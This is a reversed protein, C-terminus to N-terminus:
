AGPIYGKTFLLEANLIAGGAAGRITNSGMAVMKVELLEDRRIRGVTVTMGGGLGVDRRPQPRDPQTTVVIPHTPRSPLGVVDPDGIWNAITDSVQDPTAPTNLGISMCVTHGNDVPVRNTHATVRIRASEIMVGNVSGLLKAIEVQLKPEEGDIFPIVNGLIDLSAVGPYGAGSVAQMTAVFVKDVGFKAHIPALALAAVTSSCNANTVIAGKWGLRKRQAEIVTIHPANIEPILLPVDPEMRHNRANSCVIRGDRAFACEVDGAVSSDLASFVLACTVAEPKCEVVTMSAVDAPMVGELWHAADAYSKGASRESAAVEAVKFWPHNELLRIFTQGVAGTAGLVAVPIRQQPPNRRTM